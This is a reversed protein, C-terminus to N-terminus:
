VISVKQSTRSNDSNAPLTAYTFNSPQFTGVFIPEPQPMPAITFHGNFNIPLFPQQIPQLVQIHHSSQARILGDNSSPKPTVPAVTIPRSIESIIQGEGFGILGSSLPILNKNSTQSIQSTQSKFKRSSGLDQVQYIHRHKPPSSNNSANRAFNSHKTSHLLDSAQPFYTDSNIMDYKTGRIPGQGNLNEFSKSGPFEHLPDAEEKQNRKHERYLIFIVFCGLIVVTLLIGLVVQLSSYSSSTPCHYNAESYDILRSGTANIQTGCNEFGDCELQRYICYKTLQCKITAEPCSGDKNPEYIETWLIEFGAGGISQSTTLFEIRLFKASSYLSNLSSDTGCLQATPTIEYEKYIKLIASSCNKNSGELSFKPFDLLIAKQHLGEHRDWRQIEWQCFLNEGYKQPYNPSRLIGAGSSSKYIGGCRDGKNALGYNTQMVPELPSPRPIFEYRLSFGKATTKADSRFRAVLGHSSVSSVYPGPIKKDCFVMSYRLVEKLNQMWNWQKGETDVLDVADKAVDCILLLLIALKALSRKEKHEPRAAPVMLGVYKFEHCEDLIRYYDEKSSKKKEATEGTEFVDFSIRVLEDPKPIFLYVCTTDVPYNEQFFPSNTWHKRSNSTM